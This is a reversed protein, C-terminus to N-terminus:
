LLRSITDPLDLVKAIFSITPVGLSVLISQRGRLSVVTDRSDAVRRHLNVLHSELGVRNDYGTRALAPVLRGFYIYHGATFAM